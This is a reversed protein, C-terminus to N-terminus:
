AAASRAANEATERLFESLSMGSKRAAEFLMRKEDQSVRARIVEDKTKRAAM